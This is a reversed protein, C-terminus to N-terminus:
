PRDGPKFTPVVRPSGVTIIRSKYSECGIKQRKETVRVGARRRVPVDGWRTDLPMEQRADGGLVQISAETGRGERGWTEAPEGHHIRQVIAARVLVPIDTKKTGTLRERRVRHLLTLRESSKWETAIATIGAPQEM